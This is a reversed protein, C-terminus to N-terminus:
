ESDAPETVVDELEPLDSPVHADSFYARRLFRKAMRCYCYCNRESVMEVTAVDLMSRDEMSDVAVPKNHCHRWCCSCGNLAWFLSELRETPLEALTETLLGCPLQHFQNIAYDRAFLMDKPASSFFRNKKSGSVWKTYIEDFKEDSILVEPVYNEPVEHIPAEYVFNTSM